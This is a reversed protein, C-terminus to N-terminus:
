LLRERNRSLYCTMCTRQSDNLTLNTTRSLLVTVSLNFSTHICLKNTNKKESKLKIKFAQGGNHLKEQHIKGRGWKRTREQLKRGSKSWKLLKDGLKLYVGVAPGRSEAGSRLQSFSAREM